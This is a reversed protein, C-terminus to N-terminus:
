SGSLVQGALKQLEANSLGQCPAPEPARETRLWLAAFEAKMASKCAAVDPHSGGCGAMLAATLGTLVAGSVAKHRIV